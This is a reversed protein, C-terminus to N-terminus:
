CLMRLNQLRSYSIAHFRASDSQPSMCARAPWNRLYCLAPNQAGCAGLPCNRTARVLRRPRPGILPPELSALEWVLVGTRRALARLDDALSKILLRENREKSQRTLVRVGLSCVNETTTRETASPDHLSSVELPVTLRIRKELRGFRLPM